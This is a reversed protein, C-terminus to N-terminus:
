NCSYTVTIYGLQDHTKTEDYKFGKRFLINNINSWECSFAGGDKLVMTGNGTDKWYEFNYGGHTGTQNSTIVVDARVNVPFLTLSVTFTILILFTGLLKQKM